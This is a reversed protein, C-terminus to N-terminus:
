GQHGGVVLVHQHIVEFEAEEVLAPTLAGLLVDEGVVAGGRGEVLEEM